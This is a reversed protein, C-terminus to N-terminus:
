MSLESISYQVPVYISQELTIVTFLKDDNKHTKVM